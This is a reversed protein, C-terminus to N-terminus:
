GLFNNWSIFSWCSFSLSFITGRNLVLSYVGKLGCACEAAERSFTTKSICSAKDQRMVSVSSGSLFLLWTLFCHATNFFPLQPDSFFVCFLSRQWERCFFELYSIYNKIVALEDDGPPLHKAIPPALVM